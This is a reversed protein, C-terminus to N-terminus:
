ENGFVYYLWHENRLNEKLERHEEACPKDSFAWECELKKNLKSIKGMEYELMETTRNDSSTFIYLFGRITSKNAGEISDNPSQLRM